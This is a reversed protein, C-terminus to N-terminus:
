KGMVDRDFSNISGSYKDRVAKKQEENGYKDVVQMLRNIFIAFRRGHIVANNALKVYRNEWANHLFYRNYFRYDKDIKYQRKVTKKYHRRKTDASGSLRDDKKKKM